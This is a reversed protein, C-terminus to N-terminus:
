GPQGLLEELVGLNRPNIPSSGEPTYSYEIAESNLKEVVHRVIKFTSNLTGDSEGFSSSLIQFTKPQWQVPIRMELSGTQLKQFESALLSCAYAADAREQMGLRSKLAQVDLTVLACPYKRYLCSVVVQFFVDTSSLLAEEVIEPSYKEGDAAIMLARKRGVLTLFGEEDFFGLDGTRLNGNDLVEKTAAENRYYGKMVNKGSVVIEGVQGPPLERGNEDVIRCSVSPAPIGATGFKHKGPTNSSVVPAAETLGYGQYMPVGLSAFFKQQRPDLMAGGSVCFRISDGFARQVVIPFVLLSALLYPFFSRLRDLFPPAHHWDGLWFGGAKIGAQFLWSALRGKERVESCIRRMIHSSLAPVTFIFMPRSEQINISINRLMSLGSTGPDVFYLSVGCTLATFIAVTHTFSHDAPLILLTRFKLPNEFLSNSDDANTRFNRHTLMVGKPNGTTGSTYSIVAISDPQIRERIIEIRRLSSPNEGCLLRRGDEVADQFSTRESFGAQMPIIRPERGEPTRCKGSLSEMRALQLGSVLIASSGSHELRFVLEADSLKPSLPVSVMGAGMIGFEGAVWEPSGEGLIAIRDGPSFGSSLLWASFSRAIDRTQSFSWPSYGGATKKLLYPEDAWKQSAEDLLRPLTPEM